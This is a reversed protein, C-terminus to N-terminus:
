WYIKHMGYKDFSVLGTEFFTTFHRSRCIRYQLISVLLLSREMPKTGFGGICILSMRQLKDYPKSCRWTDQVRSALPPRARRFYSRQLEHSEVQDQYKCKWPDQLKSSLDDNEPVHRWIWINKANIKKKPRRVKYKERPRQM